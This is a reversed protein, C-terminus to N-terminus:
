QFAEENKMSSSSNYVILSLVASIIFVFIGIVSALNYDAFDVTLKYLWTVLLDTEGAQYLFVSKPNGQTLLYIVNFNNFNGVFQTILYPTTIFLMYPLTIRTFTKLPSAGDIRASEYLDAPINMLIGSCILMSYPIGVWMNVIIVMIRALPGDSWFRVMDMGFYQTLLINVPGGQGQDYFINRMILLSVFQPVAITVVFITRWLKKLKIGKKNILIALLMGLLYNSFTAFIAWTINWGLLYSFTKAKLPNNGLVDQFNQFGVWTFLNGPPQHNKDFNTFAILIMFILPLIVFASALLMPGSLLTAQYKEDLLGRIDELATTNKRNARHNECAKYSAKISAVWIALLVGIVLMTMVGYLLILMSNDPPSYLPTGLPSYGIIEREATGLTGIERLYHWGFSQVFYIIGGQLGLFLIGKLVQKRVICGFGMILYSLKVFVDGDWFMQWLGAFFNGIGKVLRVIGNGLARIGKWLRGPLLIFFQLLNYIFKQFWNM